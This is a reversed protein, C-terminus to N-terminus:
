HPTSVWFVKRFRRQEPLADLSILNVGPDASPNEARLMAYRATHQFWRVVPKGEIWAVVLHGDLAEPEEDVDVYGVFAGAAVIPEMADGEVRVCRCVRDGPLSERNAPVYKPGPEPSEPGPAKADRAKAGRATPEVGVLVLEGGERLGGAGHERAIFRRPVGNALGMEEAQELQELVTRLLAGVSTARNEPDIPPLTRFQPGRGHLLWLPEVSTLEIFRLLVEAPVTVGAEYNYWTRIPVGLRRALEPGGREGFMETRITRLREALHFKARVSEPHNKRRAM